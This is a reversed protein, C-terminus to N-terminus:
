WAAFVGLYRATLSLRKSPRFRRKVDYHKASVKTTQYLRYRM